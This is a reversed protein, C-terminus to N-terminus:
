IGLTRFFGSSFVADFRERAGPPLEEAEVLKEVVTRYFRAHQARLTRPAIDAGLRVTELFHCFDLVSFEESTLPIRQSSVDDDLM